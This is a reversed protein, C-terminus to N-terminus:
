GAAVAQDHGIETAVTVGAKAITWSRHRFM